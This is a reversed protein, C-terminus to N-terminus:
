HSNPPHLFEYFPAYPFFVKFPPISYFPIIVRKSSISVLISHHNFLSSILKIRPQIASSCDPM